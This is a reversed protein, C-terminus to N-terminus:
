NVTLTPNVNAMKCHIYQGQCVPLCSPCIHVHYIPLHSAPYISPYVSMSVTSQHNSLYSPMYIPQNISQYIFPYSHPQTLHTPSTATPKQGYGYSQPSHPDTCLLRSSHWHAMQGPNRPCNSPHLQWSLPWPKSAQADPHGAALPSPVPSPHTGSPIPRMIPILRHCHQGVAQM